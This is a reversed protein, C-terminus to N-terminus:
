QKIAEDIIKKLEHYKEGRGKNKLNFTFLFGTYHLSNDVWPFSGFLGPSTVGNSRRDGTAEDMVWEGFGYGWNGAEAPTYAIRTDKTVRNKQMEIISQKSVVQKGNYKGDNLIMSLFKTYDEATSWGSGAPMPVKGHGFDTQTMECPKAIRESFLTEFDKGSTKEIVAAAIQLGASSYHFTKGPEGEMPMKAIMEIAEDMSQVQKMEDLNEKLSGPKIGTLHSMCQWITINGKGNATMVPLWKGVTDNINLRGEDVFTMVLAASLWKSCSAIREKTTSTFDKLMEDPDKGQRKAIFKGVMRQGRSLNNEAQNY